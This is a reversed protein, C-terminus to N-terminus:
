MIQGNTHFDFSDNMPYNDIDQNLFDLLKQKIRIKQLEDANKMM